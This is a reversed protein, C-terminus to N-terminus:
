AAGWAGAPLGPLQEMVCEFDTLRSKATTGNRKEKDTIPDYSFQPVWSVNGSSPGLNSTGPESAPPHEPVLDVRRGATDASASGRGEPAPDTVIPRRLTRAPVLEARLAM